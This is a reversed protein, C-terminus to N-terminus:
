PCCTRGRRPYFVEGPNPCIGSTSPFKHRIRVPQCGGSVPRRQFEAPNSDRCDYQGNKGEFNITLEANTSDTANIVGAAFALTTGWSEARLQTGGSYIAAEGRGAIMENSADAIRDVAVTTGWLVEFEFGVSTGQHALDFRIELRDGAQLVGQPITCTGLSVFVTANTLSGLSSCIVQASPFTSQPSALGGAGATRYSALLTDAPQPIAGAVFTLAAGILTYDFGPKELNGNRYLALSTAPDPTNALTFAVNAGDVIGGPIEGDIFAPSLSCSGSTGDVHMCDSANGAATEIGGTANVIATRGAGFGPAKVVRLALDNVLGIVDADLIPTQSPPALPAASSRVDRVRLATTSPPVNWTEQFQVKGDSNYTVSYLIPPSADTTPVLQVRLNGDLIKVTVSQTAINSTDGAEFSTWSIIAIGNFRTGDAKYLL